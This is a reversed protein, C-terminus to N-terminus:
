NVVLTEVRAVAGSREAAALAEDRTGSPAAIPSASWLAVVTYTGVLEITLAATLAGPEEVCGRGGPCAAVLEGRDRYIWIARHGPGRRAAARVVDGVRVTAGRLADGRPADGRPEAGRVAGGRAEVRVALEPGEGAGHWPRWVVLALVAAAAALAPLLATERRFWRRHWAPPSSAAEVRAEWGPPPRQEAGLARLAAEIRAVAREDDSGLGSM